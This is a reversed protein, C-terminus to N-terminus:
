RNIATEKIPITEKLIFFYYLSLIPYLFSFLLFQKWKEKDNHFPSIISSFFSIYLFLINKHYIKIYLLPPKLKSAGLIALIIEQAKQSFDLLTRMQFVWCYLCIGSFNDAWAWSAHVYFQRKGRAKWSRQFSRREM